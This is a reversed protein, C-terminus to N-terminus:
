LFSPPGHLNDEDTSLCVRERLLNASGGVLLFTNAVTMFFLRLHSYELREM